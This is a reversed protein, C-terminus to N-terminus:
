TDTKAALKRGKKLFCYQNDLGIKVRAKTKLAMTGIKTKFIEVERRLIVVTKIKKRREDVNM